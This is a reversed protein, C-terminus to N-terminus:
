TDRSAIRLLTAGGDLIEEPISVIDVDGDAADRFGGAASVGILGVGDPSLLRQVLPKAEDPSRVARMVVRDYTGDLRDIDAIVTTVNALGLLRVVRRCLDIRRESRDVLTVHWRPFAVALPLGPLGAGAGLDIVESEGAPFVGFTLADLIHRRWLRGTEDPGVAGAVAAESALWDRYDALQRSAAPSLPSAGLWELLRNASAIEDGLDHKVPFM